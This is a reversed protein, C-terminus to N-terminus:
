DITISDVIHERIGNNTDYFAFEVVNEDAIFAYCREETTVSIDEDSYDNQIVYYLGRKGDIAIQEKELLTENEGKGVHYTSFDELSDYSYYTMIFLQYEGNEDKFIFGGTNEWNLPVEFAYGDQEEEVWEINSCGSLCVVMCLLALASLIRKKM